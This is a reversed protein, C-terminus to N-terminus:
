LRSYWQSVVPHCVLCMSLIWENLQIQPSKRMWQTCIWVWSVESLRLIVPQCHSIYYYMLSMPCKVASCCSKSLYIKSIISRYNVKTPNKICSMVKITTNISKSLYLIEFTIESNVSFHGKSPILVRSLNLRHPTLCLSQKVKLTVFCICVNVWLSTPKEKTNKGWDHVSSAPFFCNSDYM